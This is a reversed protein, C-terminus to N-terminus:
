KSRPAFRSPEVEVRVTVGEALYRRLGAALEEARAEGDSKTSAVRLFFGDFGGNASLFFLLDNKAEM